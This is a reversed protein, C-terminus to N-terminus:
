SENLLIEVFCQIKKLIWDFMKQDFLNLLGNNFEDACWSNKEDVQGNVRMVMIKRNGNGNDNGNDDENSSGNVDGDDDSFENDGGGGEKMVEKMVEEVVEKVVDEVMEKEVKTM